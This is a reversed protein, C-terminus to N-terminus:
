ESSMILNRLSVVDSVTLQDDSNLDSALLQRLDPTQRGMIFNRLLIIDAVTIQGDQNVDGKLVEPETKIQEGGLVLESIQVIAVDGVNSELDLKYYLYEGPNDVTFEKYTFFEQPLQGNEVTDVVVWDKGNHSGSLTWSVPTRDPADNATAIAYNQIISPSKMRWEVSVPWDADTCYKTETSGDFLYIAEEGRFGRSSSIIYSTDIANTIDKEAVDGFGLSRGLELLDEEAQVLIEYKTVLPKLEEDLADFIERVKRINNRKSYSDVPLLDDFMSSIQDILQAEVFGKVEEPIAQKDKIQAYLDIAKDVNEESYAFQTQLLGKTMIILDDILNDQSNPDLNFQSDLWLTRNAIYNKLYDLEEEYTHYVRSHDDRISDTLANPWRQNDLKRSEDILQDVYEISDFFGSFYGDKKLKTWRQKVLNLFTKDSMLVNYWPANTILLGEITGYSAISQNGLCTDYDWVPGMFLKGGADRYTYCSTVFQSDYNKVFENLIYWDVFSQVDIYKSYEDYGLSLSEEVALIYQNNEEMLWNMFQETVDDYEPEKYTLHVGLPTEFCYDCENNHRGPKEIEFLVGGNEDDIDVRNDGIEVKETLLYNGQYEGNIYVDVFACETTGPLGMDLALNLTLYNRMLTKDWYNALLIWKKAKGMGLLSTKSDLKIQYPKKPLGWTSNGRGKIELEKEIIDDFGEAGVLSYEGKLYGEKKIDEAKSGGYLNIHLTPLNTAPQYDAAFVNFTPLIGFFISVSLIISIFKYSRKM